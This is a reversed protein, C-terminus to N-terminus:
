EHAQDDHDQERIDAAPNYVNDCHNVTNEHEDSEGVVNAGVKTVTVLDLIQIGAFLLVGSCDNRIAAASNVFLAAVGNCPRQPWIAVQWFSKDCTWRQIMQPYKRLMPKRLGKAKQRYYIM